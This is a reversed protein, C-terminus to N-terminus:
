GAIRYDCFKPAYLDSDASNTMGPGNNLSIVTNFGFQDIKPCIHYKNLNNRNKSVKFYVVIAM